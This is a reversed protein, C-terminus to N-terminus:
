LVRKRLAGSVVEGLLVVILIAILITAATQWQFTDIAGQLIMGIGGAGVLGLVTSERINIDWRLITVALFTPLVQPIVAYLVIKGKDGGVATVAEVPKRDIEEIAEAMLKATFGISRFAIALIGAMVGPGFIAVFLLAWIITNVSRTAVLIFRGIWLTVVNPTTNQAAIYATPLAIFLSLFTALTAIHITELMARLIADGRRLDPPSMRRFLDAIEEPATWVWPWFIDLTRLAWFVIAASALYALFRALREATTYRQWRYSTTGRPAPADRTV